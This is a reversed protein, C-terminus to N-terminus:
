AVCRHAWAWVVVVWMLGPLCAAAVLRFAAAVAAPGVGSSALRCVSSVFVAGGFEIISHQLGHLFSVAQQVVWTCM